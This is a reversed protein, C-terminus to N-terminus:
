SIGSTRPTPTGCSCMYVRTTPGYLISRCRAQLLPHSPPPLERPSQRSLLMRLMLAAKTPPPPQSYVVSPSAAMVDQQLSPNGGHHNEWAHLHVMGEGEAEHHLHPQQVLQELTSDPLWEGYATSLTNPRYMIISRLAFGAHYAGVSPQEHEADTALADDDVLCVNRLMCMRQRNFGKKLRQSTNLSLFPSPGICSYDSYTFPPV